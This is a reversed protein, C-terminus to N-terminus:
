SATKKKGLLVADMEAVLAARAADDMAGSGQLAQKARLNAAELAAAKQELAALKREMVAIKREGQKLSNQKLDIEERGKWEQFRGERDRHIVNAVAVFAKANGEKMSRSLFVSEAAREILDKPMDGRESLRRAFDEAEANWSDIDRIMAFWARWDSLSSDNTKVGHESQLWEVGEALSKGAALYDFLAEQKEPPLNKLVSSPMPKRKRHQRKRPM